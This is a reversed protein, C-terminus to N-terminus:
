TDSFCENFFLIGDYKLTDKRVRLSILLSIQILRKKLVSSDMSNRRNAFSFSIRQRGETAVATNASRQSARSM